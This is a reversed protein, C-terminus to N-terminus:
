VGLSHCNVKVIDYFSIHDCTKGCFNNEFGMEFHHNVFLKLILSMNNDRQKVYKVCVKLRLFKNLYFKILKGMLQYGALSFLM